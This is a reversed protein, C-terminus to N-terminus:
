SGSNTGDADKKVLTWGMAVLPNEGAAIRREIEARRAANRQGGTRIEEMAAAYEAARKAKLSARADRCQTCTTRISRSVRGGRFFERMPKEEECVACVQPASPDVESAVSLAIDVLADHKALYELHTAM